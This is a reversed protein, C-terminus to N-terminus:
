IPHNKDKNYKGNILNRKYATHSIGIDQASKGISIKSFDVKDLQADLYWNYVKWAVFMGIIVLLTM